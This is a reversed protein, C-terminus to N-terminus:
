PIWLRGAVAASSTYPLEVEGKEDNDPPVIASDKSCSAWLLAFLILALYRKM